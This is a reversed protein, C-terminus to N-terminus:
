KQTTDINMPVYAPCSRFYATAILVLGVLGLLNLTMLGWLAIVAGAAFRINRDTDGINQPMNM